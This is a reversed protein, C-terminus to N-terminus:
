NDTQGFYRFSFPTVLRRVLAASAVSRAGIRDPSSSPATKGRFRGSRWTLRPAAPGCRPGERGRRAARGERKTKAVRVPVATELRIRGCLFPLPTESRSTAKRRGESPRRFKCSINRVPESAHNPQPHPPPHPHASCSVVAGNVSFFAASTELAPFNLQPHLARRQSHRGARPPVWLRRAAAASRCWEPQRRVERGHGVPRRTRM